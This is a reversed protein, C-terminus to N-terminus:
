VKSELKIYCFIIIECQYKMYTKNLHYAKMHIFITERCGTNLLINSTLIPPRM